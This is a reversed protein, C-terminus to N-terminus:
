LVELVKGDAAGSYRIGSELVKTLHRIEDVKAQAIGADCIGSCDVEYCQGGQLFEIKPIGSDGVFADIRKEPDLGELLEPESFCSDRGHAELSEARSQWPTFYVEGPVLLLAVWPIWLGGAGSGRVFWMM